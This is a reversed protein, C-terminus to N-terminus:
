QEPAHMIIRDALIARRGNAHDRVQALHGGRALFCFTGARDCRAYARTLWAEVIFTRPRRAHPARLRFISGVPVTGVAIDRGAIREYRHRQPSYQRLM